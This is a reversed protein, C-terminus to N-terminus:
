ETQDWDVEESALRALGLLQAETLARVFEDPKASTVLGDVMHGFLEAKKEEITARAAARRRDSKWDRVTALIKPLTGMAGVVAAIGALETALPNEYRLSVVTPPGLEVSAVEADVLARYLSPSFDEIGGFGLGPLGFSARRNGYRGLRRYHREWMFYWDPGGERMSQEVDRAMSLYQNLESKLSESRLRELFRGPEAPDIRRVADIANAVAESKALLLAVDTAIALDAVLSSVEGLSARPGLNVRVILNAM